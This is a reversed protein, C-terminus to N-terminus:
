RKKNLYDERKREKRKDSENVKVAADLPPAYFIYECLNRTDVRLKWRILLKHLPRLPFKIGFQLNTNVKNWYIKWRVKRIKKKRQLLAKGQESGNRRTSKISIYIFLSTSAAPSRTQEQSILKICIINRLSYFEQGMLQWSMQRWKDITHFDSPNDHM